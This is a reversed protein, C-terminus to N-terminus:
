RAGTLIMGLGYNKGAGVGNALAHNAADADVVTVQANVDRTVFRRAGTGAVAAASILLPNGDAEVDLALGQRLLLAEAWEYADADSVRTRSGATRTPGDARVYGPKDKGTRKEAALRVTVTLQDGAAVTPANAADRHLVRIRGPVAFQDGPACVRYQVGLEARPTSTPSATAPFAAMVRRHLANLDQTLRLNETTLPLNLSNVIM